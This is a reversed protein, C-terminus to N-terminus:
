EARLRVLVDDGSVQVEHLTLRTAPFRECIGTHVDFDWSHWPCVLREGSIMGEDLPGARHPCLVDAAFVEHETRGVVLERGEVTARRLAGVPLDSLHAVVTWDLMRRPLTCSERRATQRVM